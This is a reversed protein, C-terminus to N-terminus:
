KSLQPLCLTQQPSADSGTTFEWNPGDVQGGKQDDASVLWVYKTNAELTLAPKCTTNASAACWIVGFLSGDEWGWITYQVADGDPDGGTWTLAPTRSVRTAGDAPSPNTPMNPSTNSSTTFEWFPGDVQGAKQDDARVFWNYKTNEKLTFPPKCTINTSAACWVDSVVASAEQGYVTYQVTDGDPDGGTWTLTPNIAIGTAGNAPVPNTPADPLDNLISYPAAFESTDGCTAAIRVQPVTFTDAQSQMGCPNINTATINPGSLFGNWSWHGSGDATISGHYTEGEDASDSYVEVMCWACGTGEAGGPSANIIVPAAIETNGGNHLKVGQLDNDHISNALIRNGTAMAGEVYVGDNLNNSITNAQIRNGAADNVHVGYANHSITNAEVINNPSVYIFVGASGNMSITNGALGDGGIQTNQPGVAIDIGDAGNGVDLNGVAPLGIINGGVRNGDSGAHGILIGQKTNGSIVNGQASTDGGITNDHAGNVINVGIYNPAKTDGTISLGIWNGQVVNHHAGSNGIYVGSQASSSVVNRQGPLPGGITNNSSYISIAGYCNYIDLGYVEVNIGYIGICSFSQDGGTIHVGPQDNVTDWGSSADLRIQTKIDLRGQAKDLHITMPNAFTITDADVLANSEEIAARLTCADLWSACTGDGPSKDHANADDSSDDVVFNVTLSSDARLSRPESWLLSTLLVIIGAFAFLRRKM